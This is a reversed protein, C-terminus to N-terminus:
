NITVLVTTVAAAAMVYYSYVIVKGLKQRRGFLRIVAFLSTGIVLNLLIWLLLMKSLATSGMYFTSNITLAILVTFVALWIFYLGVLIHYAVHKVDLERM